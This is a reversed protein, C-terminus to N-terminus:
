HLRSQLPDTEAQSPPIISITRPFTSFDLEELATDIAQLQLRAETIAELFEQSSIEVDRGTLRHGILKMRITDLTTMFVAAQAESRQVGAMVASFHGRYEAINKDAIRYLERAQPDNSQGVWVPPQSLIENETRHVDAAVFDARRLAVYVSQGVGRITDPMEALMVKQDRKVDRLVEEFRRIRDRCGNWLAEYRKSFFRNRKSDEWARLFFYGICGALLAGFVPVRLDGAALSLLYALLALLGLNVWRSPRRLERGFAKRDLRRVDTM